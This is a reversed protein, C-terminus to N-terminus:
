LVEVDKAPVWHYVASYNVILYLQNGYADVGTDIVDYVQEQYRVKM